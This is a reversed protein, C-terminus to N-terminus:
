LCWVFRSIYLVVLICYEYLPLQCLTSYSIFKILRSYNSYVLVSGM